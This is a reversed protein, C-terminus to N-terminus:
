DRDVSWGHRRLSEVVRDPAVDLKVECLDVDGSDRVSMRKGHLVIRDVQSRAFRQRKGGDLVVVERGTVQLTVAQTGLLVAAVAGIVPLLGWSVARAVPVEALLRGALLLQSSYPFWDLSGALGILWPLAFALVLGLGSGLAAMAVWEVAPLRIDDVEDVDSSSPPLPHISVLEEPETRSHHFM